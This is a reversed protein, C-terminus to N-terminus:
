QTSCEFRSVHSKPLILFASPVHRDEPASLSVSQDNCSARIWGPHPDAPRGRSDGAVQGQNQRDATASCLAWIAPYITIWPAPHTPVAGVLFPDCPHQFLVFFPFHLGSNQTICCFNFCLFVSQRYLKTSFGSLNSYIRLEFRLFVRRLAEDEPCCANQHIPILCKRVEFVRVTCIM